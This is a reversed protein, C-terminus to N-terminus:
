IGPLGPIPTRAPVLGSKSLLPVGGEAEGQTTEWAGPRRQTMGGKSPSPLCPRKTTGGGGKGNPNGGPDSLDGKPTTPQGHRKGDIEPRMGEDPYGLGRGAM